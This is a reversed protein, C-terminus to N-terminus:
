PLSKAEPNTQSALVALAREKAPRNRATPAYVALSGRIAGVFAKDKLDLLLAELQEIRRNAKYWSGNASLLSDELQVVRDELMQAQALWEALPSKDGERFTSIEGSLSV